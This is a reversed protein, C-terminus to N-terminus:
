IKSHINQEFSSFMNQRHSTAFLDEIKDMLLAIRASKSSENTLLYDTVTMEAFVSATEALPLIPHYNTLTNKSSYMDHVAHGLEHALTSIDRSKGLYNVMVFPNKHPTAGSCFAGGRKSKLVPAHIRNETFIAEAKRGFDEDFRNFCTLVIDKAQNWTYFQDAEPIPAYIDALTMDPM